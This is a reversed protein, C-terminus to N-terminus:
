LNQIEQVKARLQDEGWASWSFAIGGGYQKGKYAKGGFPKAKAVAIDKLALVTQCGPFDTKAAISEARERDKENVFNLFHVVLRDNIRTITM